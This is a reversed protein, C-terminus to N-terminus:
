KPVGRANSCEMVVTNQNLNLEYQHSTNNFRPNHINKVQAHSVYYVKGEEFMPHFKKAHDEFATARIDGTEDQLTLNFM